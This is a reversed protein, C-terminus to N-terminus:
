ANGLKKRRMGLGALGAIAAGFMYIAAPLPVVGLESVTLSDVTFAGYVSRITTNTAFDYYEDTFSGGGYQQFNPDLILSLPVTLDLPIGFSFDSSYILATISEYIYLINPDSFNYYNNHYVQETSVNTYNQVYTSYDSNVNHTALGQIQYSASIMPSTTSNTSGGYLDATNPGIVQGSGLTTDYVFTAVISRGNLINNGAGLGLHNTEDYSNYITGTYVAQMIAASSISAPCILVTTLAVTRFSSGYKM